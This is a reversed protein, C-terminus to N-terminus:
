TSGNIPANVIVCDIMQGHEGGQCYCHKSVSNPDSETAEQDNDIDM